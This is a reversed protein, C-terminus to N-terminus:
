QEKGPLAPLAPLHEDLPTPRTDLGMQHGRTVVNNSDPSWECTVGIMVPLGSGLAAEIAIRGIDIDSLMELAILDVGAEAPVTM